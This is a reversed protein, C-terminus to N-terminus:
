LAEMQALFGPADQVGYVNVTHITIRRSGGSSGGPPTFTEGGLAQVLVPRGVPGPVVGGSDFSPISGFGGGGGGGGGGTKGAIRNFGNLVTDITRKLAALPGDIVSKIMSGIAKMAAAFGASLQNLPGVLGLQAALTQLASRLMALPGAIVAGVSVAVGQLFAGIRGMVVQFGDAIQAIVTQWAPGINAMLNSWRQSIGEAASDLVGYLGQVKSAATDLWNYIGAETPTGKTAPTTGGTPQEGAQAQEKLAAINADVTARIKAQQNAYAVNEAAIKDQLLKVQKAYSEKVKAEEAARESAIEALQKARQANQEALNQALGALAREHHQKAKTEEEAARAEAKAVDARYQEEERQKQAQLQAVERDYRRKAREDDQRAKKEARAVDENYSEDEAAMLSLIKQREVDTTAAALQEALSTKKDAHTEALSDLKDELDEQRTARQDEYSFKKDALQEDIARQREAFQDALSTLNDQLAKQRDVQQEQYNLNEDAIQRNIGKVAKAYSEQVQTVAKATKDAIATLADGLTTQQTRIDAEIKAFAQQHTAALSSLSAEMQSQQKAIDAGLGSVVAKSQTGNFLDTLGKIAYALVSLPGSAVMAATNGMDRLAQGFGTLKGTADHTQLGLSELLGAIPKLVENMLALLTNITDLASGLPTTAFTVIANTLATWGAANNNLPDLLSSLKTLLSDMSPLFGAGIADQLGNLKNNFLDMPTAMAVAVGGIETALESLIIKQASAVDGVAVFSKVMAEQQDTLQVGIRRLAGIGAVPDNLAKGLIIAAQPLDMGFKQAMDAMAATAQPFVDKGINTFTLLMAEGKVVADDEFKTTNQLQSALDNVAKATMGSVGGTSTLVANLDAQVAKAEMAGKVMSAFGNAVTSVADMATKAGVFGLFASKIDDGIGKVAKDVKSKANDMDKDLQDLTARIPVYATGLKSDGAM